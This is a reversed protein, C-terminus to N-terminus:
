VSSGFSGFQLSFFFSSFFKWPFSCLFASECKAQISERLWHCKRAHARATTYKMTGHCTSNARMLELARYSCGIVFCANQVSLRQMCEDALALARMRSVSSTSYSMGVAICMRKQFAFSTRFRNSISCREM